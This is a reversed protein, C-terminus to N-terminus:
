YPIIQIDYFEGMKLTCNLPKKQLYITTCREGCDVKLVNGDGQLCGEHGNAM